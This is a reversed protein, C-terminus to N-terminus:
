TNGTATINDVWGALWARVAPADALRHRAESRGPGVKLSLGGLANVMCFGYEDTLDDGVFVPVRGTFPAEQMYDEIASGKDYGTLKIEFVMKGVQMEYVGGLLRLGAAVADRAAGAAHPAGRVHLALSAGKDEFVVGPHRAAFAALRTVVTRLLERRGVHRHVRGVGDRREAGHQGAAIPAAAGFLRDLDSLARGSILAVADGAAHRLAALLKTLAPDVRVADPTAAIDLLTGDVDLFYCWDRAYPPLTDAAGAAVCALSAPLDPSNM